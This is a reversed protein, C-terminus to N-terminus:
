VEPEGRNCSYVKEIINSKLSGKFAHTFRKSLIKMKKQLIRHDSSDSSHVSMCCIRMSILQTCASGAAIYKAEVSSDVLDADCYGVLISNMDYSYLIGFDSTGHVYKIIRKVAALHSAHSDSQFRVCIGIADIDLRSFTLYLVGGIMSRYLKHDITTGNLIKPLKSM